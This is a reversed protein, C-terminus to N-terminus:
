DVESVDVDLTTGSLAWEFLGFEDGPNSAATPSTVSGNDNVPLVMPAGVSMVVQGGTILSAPIMVTQNVVKDAPYSGGQPFVTLMPLTQNALAVTDGQAYTGTAGGTFMADNLTAPTPPNAPTTGQYSEIADVEASPDYVTVTGHSPFQLLSNVSLSTDSTQFQSALTTIPETLAFDASAPSGTLVVYSDTPLTQGQYVGSQPTYPATLQGDIGVYVGLNAVSGPMSLTFPVGSPALRPEVEELRMRSAVLRRRERVM